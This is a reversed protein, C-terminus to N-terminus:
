RVGEQLRESATTASWVSRGEGVMKSVLGRKQMRGLLWLMQTTGRSPGGNAQGIQSATPYFVQGLQQATRSGERMLYSWVRDMSTGVGGIKRRTVGATGAKERKRLCRPCWFKWRVRNSGLRGCDLCLKTYKV